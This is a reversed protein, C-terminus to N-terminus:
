IIQIIKLFVHGGKRVCDLDNKSFTNRASGTQPAITTPLLLRLRICGESDVDDDVMMGVQEEDEPWNEAKWLGSTEDAVGGTPSAECASAMRVKALM